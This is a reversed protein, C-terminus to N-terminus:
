TSNAGSSSTTSSTTPNSLYIGAFAGSVILAALVTAIIVYSTKRMTAARKTHAKYDALDGGAFPLNTQFIAFSAPAVMAAITLRQAMVTRQGAIIVPM